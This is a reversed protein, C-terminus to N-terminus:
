DPPRITMLDCRGCSLLCGGPSQKTGVMFGKNAACEGSEAWGRCEAHEDKCGPPAPPPPPVFVVHEVKDAREGGAAYHAVHFWKTAAFKVGSVVPCSGHLAGQDLTGQTRLSWFVVADGKRPRVALGDLACESFGAARTQSPPPDVNPFITEGGADM